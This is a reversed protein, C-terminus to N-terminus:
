SLEQHEAEWEDQAKKDWGSDSPQLGSDAREVLRSMRSSRNAAVIRLITGKHTIELERGLAVDHLLRFLNKRLETATVAMHADYGTCRVDKLTREPWVRWSSVTCRLGTCRTAREWWWM